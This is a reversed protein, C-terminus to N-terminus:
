TIVVAKSERNLETLIEQLEEKISTIIVIVDTFRLRNLSEGDLIVGKIEQLLKKFMEELALTFVKPSFTDGQM